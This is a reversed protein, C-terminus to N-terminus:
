DVKSYPYMPYKNGANYHKEAWEWCFRSVIEIDLDTDNALAKDIEYSSCEKSINLIEQSRIESKYTENRERLNIVYVILIFILIGSIIKWNQQIYDM